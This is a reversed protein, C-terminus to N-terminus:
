GIVVLDRPKDFGSLQYARASAIDIVSLTNGSYDATFLHRVSRDAVIADPQTGVAIRSVVARGPLDLVAVNNTASETV